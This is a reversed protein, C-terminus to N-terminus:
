PDLKYPPLARSYTADEKKPLLCIYASNLDHLQSTNLDFFSKVAALLDAKIVDWAARFFVGIFGDPGPAKKAPM